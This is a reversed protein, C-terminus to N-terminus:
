TAPAARTWEHLYHLLALLRYYIRITLSDDAQMLESHIRQIGSETGQLCAGVFNRGVDTGLKM